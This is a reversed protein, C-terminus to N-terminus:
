KELLVDFRYHSNFQYDPQDIITFKKFGVYTSLYALFEKSFWTGIISKKSLLSEFYAVRRDNTNFYDFLKEVDPIDGIFFLGNPRLWKHVSKFILITENETFHQLAFYMVAKSFTGEAIQLSRVDRVVPMINTHRTIDIKSLLKESIDVANVIRCKQSFPISLLGNGSCIDILVDEEDIKIIEMIYAVTKIWADNCIPRKNITRGIQCHLNENQLIPSNNWFNVWYDSDIESLSM